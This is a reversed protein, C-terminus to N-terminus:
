LYLAAVPDVVDITDAYGQVADDTPMMTASHGIVTLPHETPAEAETGDYPDDGSGEGQEGV